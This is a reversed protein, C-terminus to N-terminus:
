KGGFGAQDHSLRGRDIRRARGGALVHQPNLHPHQGRLNAAIGGALDACSFPVIGLFSEGVPDAVNDLAVRGAKAGGNERAFYVRGGVEFAVIRIKDATVAKAAAMVEILIKQEAWREAPRPVAHRERTKIM